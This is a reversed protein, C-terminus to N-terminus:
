WESKLIRANRSLADVEKYLSFEELVETLKDESFEGSAFETTLNPRNRLLQSNITLLELNRSFQGDEVFAKAVPKKALEFQYEEVTSCKNVLERIHKSHICPIKIGKEKNFKNISYINDSKDGEALRVWNVKSIDDIEFELKVESPTIIETQGPGTSSKKPLLLHTNESVESFFDTDISHILAHLYGHDKLLAEPVSAVVDDGEQDALQIIPYNISQLLRKVWNVNETFRQWFLPTFKKRNAKYEPNKEFKNKNYGDFVVFIEYDPYMTKLKILSLYFGFGGGVFQTNGKAFLTSNRFTARFMQWMGDIVIVKRMNVEKSAEIYNIFPNAPLMEVETLEVDSAQFEFSKKYSFIEVECFVKDAESSLVPLKIGAFQGRKVQIFEGAKFKKSSQNKCADIFKLLSSGRVEGLVSFTHGQLGKRMIELILTHKNSGKIAKIYIYNQFVDEMGESGGNLFNVQPFIIEPFKAQLRNVLEIKELPNFTSYVLMFTDTAEVAIQLPNVVDNKM